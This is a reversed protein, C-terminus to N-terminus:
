WPKNDAAKVEGKLVLLGVLAGAACLLFEGHPVPPTSDGPWAVVAKDDVPFSSGRSAPATYTKFPGGPHNPDYGHVTTGKAVLATRRAPYPKLTVTYAHPRILPSDAYRGGVWYDEPNHLRFNLGVGTYLACHDHIGATNGSAGVKAIAQGRSVQAGAWVLLDSCHNSVFNMGGAIHVDISLGGGAFPGPNAAIGSHIVTGAESAVIVTGYPADKDTGAHFKQKVAGAYPNFAADVNSRHWYEFDQALNRPAFHGNVPIQGSTPLLGSM